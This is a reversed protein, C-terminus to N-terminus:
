ILVVTKFLLPKKFWNFMKLTLLIQLITIVKINEIVAGAVHTTLGTGMSDILLWTPVEELVDSSM